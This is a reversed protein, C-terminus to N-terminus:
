TRGGGWIFSVRSAAIIVRKGKIGIKAMWGRWSMTVDFFSHGDDFMLCERRSERWQECGRVEVCSVRWGGVNGKSIYVFQCFICVGPNYCRTLSTYQSLHLQHLYSNM